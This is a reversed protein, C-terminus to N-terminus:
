DKEDPLLPRVVFSYTKKDPGTLFLGQLGGEPTKTFVRIEDPTFVRHPSQIADPNKPDPGAFDTLKLSPWPWPRKPVVAGESEFLIGRYRTPEYAVGGTFTQLRDRLRSLAAKVPADPSTDNEDIGLGNVQVTKALGGAHLTFVTTPADAIRNNDYRARAIGLSGPGIAYELLSQMQAESLKATFLPEGLTPEGPKQEPVPANPDPQPRYIVTGDGFLSFSPTRGLVFEPAIFGGVEELRLVVDTAGTPHEIGSQSPTASPAASASATAGSPGPSTSALPAACAAILVVPALALTRRRSM